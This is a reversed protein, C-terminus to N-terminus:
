RFDERPPPTHGPLKLLNNTGSRPCCRVLHDTERAKPLPTDDFCFFNESKHLGRSIIKLGAGGGRERNRVPSLSHGTGGAPDLQVQIPRQLPKVLDEGLHAGWADATGTHRLSM